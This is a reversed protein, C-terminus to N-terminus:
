GEGTEHLRWVRSIRNRGDEKTQSGASRKVERIGSRRWEKIHRTGEDKQAEPDGRKGVEIGKEDRKKLRKKKRKKIVM